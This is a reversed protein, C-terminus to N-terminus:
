FQASRPCTPAHYGRLLIDKNEAVMHIPVPQFRRPTPYADSSKETTHLLKKDVNAPVQPAADLDIPYMGYLNSLASM